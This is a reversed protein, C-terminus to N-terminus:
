RGRLRMAAWVVGVAIAGAALAAVLPALRGAARVRGTLKPALWLALIPSLVAIDVTRVEGRALRGISLEMVSGAAATDAALPLLVLSSMRPAALLPLSALAPVLALTFSVGAIHLAAALTFAALAPRLPDTEAGACLWGVAVVAVAVSVAVPWVALLEPRTHPAGALWWGCGAAIVLLPPWVGRNAALRIAVLAAALTGAALLTLRDSLLRPTITLPEHNMVFWGAIVGAGAAAADLLGTKFIRGAVVLLLSIGLAVLPGHFEQALSLFEGRRFVTHTLM